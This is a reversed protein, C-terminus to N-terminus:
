SREETTILHSLPILPPSTGPTCPHRHVHPPARPARHAPPPPVKMAMQWKAKMKKWGEVKIGSAEVM